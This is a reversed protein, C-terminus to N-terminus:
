ETIQFDRGFDLTVTTGEGVESEIKILHGLKQMIKRCLYLGIGTSKRDWRGNYGTFGKEMVRPLDERSIGIGTDKILISDGTVAVRIKGEKTYKLANSLIQEVVFVAWREDTLVEMGSPCFELEIKKLIFLSSYKRIAKRAIEDLSCHQLVLDSNLNGVRLYSLVMEVYQETKFLEAEMARRDIQESQNLLKMAAIPTKIQHAWLTYYDVMEQYRIAADSELNRRREELQFLLQQYQEETLNAPKPLGDLEMQKQQSIERLRGSRHVFGAFDYIGVFLILIGSLLAAYQVTEAPVSSLFFVIMFIVTIGVYIGIVKRCKRLYEIFVRMM